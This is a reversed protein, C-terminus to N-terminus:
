GLQGPQGPRGPRGPQALRTQVLRASQAQWARGAKCVCKCVRKCVWKCVCECVRKRMHNRVCKRVHKCVNVSPVLTCMRAVQNTVMRANEYLSNMICVHEQEGSKGTCISKEHRECQETKVFVSHEVHLCSHRNRQNGADQEAVQSRESVITVNM